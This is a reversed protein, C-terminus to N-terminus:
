RDDGVIEPALEAVACGACSYDPDYPTLSLDKQPLPSIAAGLRSAEATIFAHALRSLELYPSRSGGEGLREDTSRELSRCFPGIWRALHDQLFKRQADRCTEAQEPLSNEVAYAEKLALVYMFELEAALHDPRERVAAGTRFGFAQYFGAIDALEQSQRFEHPLGLETEYLLSGTLGFINRHQAQLAELPTAEFGPLDECQLLVDLDHLIKALWPTDALWNEQPYLLAHAIFYYVQARQITQDIM